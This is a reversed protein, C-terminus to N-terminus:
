DLSRAPAMTFSLTPGNTAVEIPDRNNVILCDQNKLPFLRSGVGLQGGSGLHWFFVEGSRNAVTNSASKYLCITSEQVGKRSAMLNDVCNFWEDLKFPRLDAQDQGNSKSSYSRTGSLPRRPFSNQGKALKCAEPRCDQTGTSKSGVGWPGNGRDTPQGGSEPNTLNESCERVIPVLDRDIKECRFWREFLVKCLDDSYYRLCDLECALREREIVLGVSNAPRQPSHPVRPPLIFIEGLPM